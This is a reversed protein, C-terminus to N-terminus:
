KWQQKTQKQVQEVQGKLQALRPKVELIKERIRDLSQKDVNEVETCAQSITSDFKIM